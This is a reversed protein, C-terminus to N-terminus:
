KFIFIDSIFIGNKMVYIFFFCCIVTLKYAWKAIANNVSSAEM